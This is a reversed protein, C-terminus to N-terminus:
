GGGDEEYIVPESPEHIAEEEPEPVPELEMGERLWGPLAGARRGEELLEALEEHRALVSRKAERVQDIALDWAPKIQSDRYYADDEAYFRQRLEATRGELEKVREEADRWGLRIQRARSRWYEEGMEDTETADEVEAEAPSEEVPELFTVAGVAYEALNKDTIVYVPAEAERLREREARAAEVLSLPRGLPRGVTEQPAEIVIVLPDSDEATSSAEGASETEQPKQLEPSEPEQSEPEVVRSLTQPPLTQAQRRGAGCGPLWLMATAAAAVLALGRLPRPARYRRTLEPEGM